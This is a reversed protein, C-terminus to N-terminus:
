LIIRDVITLPSLFTVPLKGTVVPKPAAEGQRLVRRQQGQNGPAVWGERELARLALRLTDRGVGLRSKLQMEGPLMESLIGSGIWEKITAATETVLSVRRPLRIM